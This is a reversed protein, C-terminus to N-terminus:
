EKNKSDLLITIPGDNDINVLMDAGFEGTKVLLNSERECKEIFKEYLPISIDPKAAKVYSPRNGKKTSAFLTFQSIILIEGQIDLISKNMVGEEDDFIRMNLIKRVLWEIDIETDNSEIGLLICLGQNISRLEKKNIHVSSSLVRQLIIRM